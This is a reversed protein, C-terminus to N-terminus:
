HCQLARGSIVSKKRNPSRRLDRFFDRRRRSTEEQEYLKASLRRFNVELETPTMHQPRFNVDFLTCMEWANERLVRGESQLRALLPTGPFATMVTIQVEYLGSERVFRFVDDFVDPTDGDLGLIFCGNVTIGYSQIKRIAALYGDVRKAKWNAHTEIGELGRRQPSELGILVQQCGSDRMLGLLEDDQAVNLDTETFWKLKEKALRRLLSKYHERHVFSNDDAFEIFPKPWISKIAHIEAIVQEVPKLKYLSTLLISSACFDCKHPCGRSTQVTIRNYKAPDLLDFRPIPAHRLDFQGRPSAAYRQQLRGREFDDLLLPWVPEGEGVVVATCHELAEDPLSTVHLGGMVVPVGRSRYIDAVAYAELIQASLSTIAVLDYHDPLEGATKLDLIERYEVDFQPPTLAALTLLSLSPLSAIVESREVFGPLTLGLALLEQSQVRVGSMAILGIRKKKITM